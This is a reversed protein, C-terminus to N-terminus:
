RTRALREFARNIQIDLEVPLRQAIRPMTRLLVYRGKTGKRAIARRILFALSRLKGRGVSRFRGGAGRGLGSRLSKDLGKAKIWSIIEAEPPMKGPRRGREVFIAPKSSNSLVAGSSLKTVVFSREYGGRARPRPKTQASVAVAQSAGYRATAQMAKVAAADMSKGLRRVALGLQRPDDLRIRSSM